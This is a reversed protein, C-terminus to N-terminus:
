EITEITIRIKPFSIRKGSPYFKRVIHEKFQNTVPLLFKEQRRIEREDTAASGSIECASSFGPRPQETLLNIVGVLECKMSAIYPM